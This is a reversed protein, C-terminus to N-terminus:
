EKSAYHWIASLVSHVRLDISVRLSSTKSIRQRLAMRPTPFASFRACGSFGKSSFFVIVITTFCFRSLHNHWTVLRRGGSLWTALAYRSAKEFGLGRPLGGLFYIMLTRFSVPNEIAVVSRSDDSRPSQRVTLRRSLALPRLTRLM